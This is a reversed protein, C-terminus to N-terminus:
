GCRYCKRVDVMRPQYPRAHPNLGTPQVVASLPDAPKNALVAVQAVLKEIAACTPDTAKQAPSASIAAIQASLQDLTAKMPDEAPKTKRGEANLQAELHAVRLTVRDTNTVTSLALKGSARMDRGILELSEITSGYKSAMQMAEQLSDPFTGEEEM